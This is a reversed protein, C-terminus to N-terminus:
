YIIVIFKKKIVILFVLSNLICWIKDGYVFLMVNVVCSLVVSWIILLNKNLCFVFLFFNYDIKIIGNMNIKYKLLIDWRM